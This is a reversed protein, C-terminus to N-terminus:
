AYQSSCCSRQTSQAVLLLNRYTGVISHGHGMLLRSNYQCLKRLNGTGDFTGFNSLLILGDSRYPMSIYQGTHTYFWVCVCSSVFDRRPGHPPTYTPSRANSTTCCSGVMRRRPSTRAGFSYATTDYQHYSGHLPYLPIFSQDTSDTCINTRCSYSSPLRQKNRRSARALCLRDRICM